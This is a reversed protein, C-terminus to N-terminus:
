MSQNLMEWHALRAEEWEKQARERTQIDAEAQARAWALDPNFKLYDQILQDLVIERIDDM